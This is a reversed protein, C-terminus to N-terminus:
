PSLLMVRWHIQFSGSVFPNQLQTKHLICPQAIETLLANLIAETLAVSFFGGYAIAFNIGGSIVLAGVGHVGFVYFLQHGTFRSSAEVNTSLIEEIDEAIQPKKEKANADLTPELAPKEAPVLTSPDFAGTEPDEPVAMAM